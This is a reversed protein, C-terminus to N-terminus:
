SGLEAPRTAPDSVVHTVPLDVEERVRQVIGRELWASRDPTHTWIVIEDAAFSRLADRMAADPDADGVRGEASLGAERAARLSLELRRSAAEIAQDLDSAWLTARSATLSPAVILVEGAEGCRTEIEAWLSRGTAAANALVLVRHRDDASRVAEAQRPAQQMAELARGVGFGLLLAIWIVGLVPALITLVTALVGGVVLVVWWPSGRGSDLRTRM